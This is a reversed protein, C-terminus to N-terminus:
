ETHSLHHGTVGLRCGPQTVLVGEGQLGAGVEFLDRAATVGTKLATKCSKGLPLNRNMTRSPRAVTCLMMVLFTVMM